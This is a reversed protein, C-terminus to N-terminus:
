GQARGGREESRPLRRSLFEQICTATRIKMATSNSQICNAARQLRLKLMNPFRTLLRHVSVTCDARSVTRITTSNEARMSNLIFLKLAPCMCSRMFASPFEGATIRLSWPIIGTLRLASPRQLGTQRKMLPMILLKGFCITCAGAERAASICAPASM